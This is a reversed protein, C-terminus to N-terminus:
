RARPNGLRGTYKAYACAMLVASEEYRVEIFRIYDQRKRLEEM